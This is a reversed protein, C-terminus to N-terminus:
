YLNNADQYEQFSSDKNKDYNKMYRNVKEYGHSVQCVVGCVGEEVMLLMNPDTLLELEVGTLKLSAQWAFGTLSLFNAPDLEYTELCM